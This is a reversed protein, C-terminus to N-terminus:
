YQTLSLKVALKGDKLSPLSATPAKAGFSGTVTGDADIRELYVDADYTLSEVDDVHPCYVGGSMETSRITVTAAGSPRSFVYAEGQKQLPLNSARLEITTQGDQSSRIIRLENQSPDNPSINVSNDGRYSSVVGRFSQVEESVSFSVFQDEITPYVYGAGDEECSTLAFASLILCTFLRLM